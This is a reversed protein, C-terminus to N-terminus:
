FVFHPACGGRSYDLAGERRTKQAFRFIAVIIKIRVGCFSVVLADDTAGPAPASGM